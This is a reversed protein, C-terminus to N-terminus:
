STSASRAPAQRWQSLSAATGDFIQEDKASYATWPGGDVRYQTLVSGSGLDGDIADLASM